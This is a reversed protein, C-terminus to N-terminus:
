IVEIERTKLNIKYTKYEDLKIDAENFHLYHIWNKRYIYTGYIEHQLFANIRQKTTNSGHGCFSFEVSNVNKTFINHEWLFYQYANYGNRKLRDRVSFCKDLQNNHGFEIERLINQEVVRM